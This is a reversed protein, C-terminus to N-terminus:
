RRPSTSNPRMTPKLSPMKPMAIVSSTAPIATGSTALCSRPRASASLAPSMTENPRLKATM